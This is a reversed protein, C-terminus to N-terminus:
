PAGNLLGLPALNRLSGVDQVAWERVRQRRASEEAARTQELLRVKLTENAVMGQEAQIRAQLDLIAKPDSATGITGILQQISAFRDSAASLAERSLAQATAARRRDDTLLTREAVSLANVAAVPLVSNARVQADVENSLAGYNAAGGTLVGSLDSWNRPLYNRAVGALLREMGRGGTMAQLEARAQTLQDQATALQYQATQVQQALSQVQQVEQVIAAVDIVAFQAGAPPVQILAAVGVAVMYQLVKGTRM